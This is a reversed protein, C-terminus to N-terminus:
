GYQWLFTKVYARYYDGTGYQFFIDHMNGSIYDWMIIKGSGYYANQRYLDMQSAIGLPDSTGYELRTHSKDQAASHATQFLWQSCTDYNVPASVFSAAPYDAFRIIESAVIVGGASHGFFEVRPYWQQLTNRLDHPWASCSSSSSSTCTYQVYSKTSVVAFGFDWLEQVWHKENEPKVDYPQPTSYGYTPTPCGITGGYLVVVVQTAGSKDWRYFQYGDVTFVAPTPLAHAKPTTVMPIMAITMLFILGIALPRLTQKEM